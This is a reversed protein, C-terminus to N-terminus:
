EESSKQRSESSKDPKAGFRISKVTLVGDPSKWYSGGVKEGLQAADLDGQLYKTESTLKFTRNGVKITGANRDVAKLTGNFPYARQNAAAAQKAAPADSDQAHLKTEIGAIALAMLGISTLKIVNKM